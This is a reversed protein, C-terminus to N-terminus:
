PTIKMRIMGCKGSALHAEESTAPGEEHGSKGITYARIGMSAEIVRRETVTIGTSLAQGIKYVFGTSKIPSCKAASHPPTCFYDTIDNPVGVNGPVAHGLLCYPMAHTEKGHVRAVGRRTMDPYRGKTLVFYLSDGPLVGRPYGFLNMANEVFKVRAITPHVVGSRSDTTESPRGAVETRRAHTIVGLYVFRQYIGIAWACCFPPHEILRLAAAIANGKNQDIEHFPDGPVFHSGKFNYYKEYLSGREHALFVGEPSTHDGIIAEMEEDTPWNAALNRIDNAHLGSIGHLMYVKEPNRLIDAASKMQQALYRNVDAPTFLHHSMASNYFRSYEGQSYRDRHHEPYDKGTTSGMVRRPLFMFIHDGPVFCTEAHDPRPAAIYAAVINAVGRKVDSTQSLTGDAMDFQPISGQFVALTMDPSGGPIQGVSAPMNDTYPTIGAGTDTFPYRADGGYDPVGAPQQM